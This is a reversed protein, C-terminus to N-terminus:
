DNYQFGGPPPTYNGGRGGGGGTGRAPVAAAEKALADLRAALKTAKEDQALKTLETIVETTLAGGAAGGRQGGRAGGAGGAGGAVPRITNLSTVILNIADNEENYLATFTTLKEGTLTSVNPDTAPAKQIAARLAAIQKEIDAIASLRAAKDPRQTSAAAMGGRGGAGGGMGGGMGAGAAGRGGGAAGRGGGASAMSLTITLITMVVIVTFLYKKNMSFVEL